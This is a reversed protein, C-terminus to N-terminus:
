GCQDISAEPRGPPGKAGVGTGAIPPRLKWDFRGPPTALAAGDLGDLKARGILSHRPAARESGAKSGVFLYNKHGLAVARLARKAAGNDIEFVGDQMYHTLVEWRGLSYKV